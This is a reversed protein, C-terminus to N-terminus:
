VCSGHSLFLTQVKQLFNNFVVQPFALVL